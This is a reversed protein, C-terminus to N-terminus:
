AAAAYDSDQEGFRNLSCRACDDCECDHDCCNGSCYREEFEDLEEEEYETLKDFPKFSPESM